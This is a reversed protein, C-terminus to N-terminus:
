SNFRVIMMMRLEEMTLTKMTLTLCRSAGKLIDIVELLYTESPLM